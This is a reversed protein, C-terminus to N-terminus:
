VKGLVYIRFNHHNHPVNITDISGHFLNGGTKSMHLLYFYLEKIAGFRWSLLLLLSFMRMDVHFLCSIFPSLISPYDDVLIWVEGKHPVGASDSCGVPSALGNVNKPFDQSKASVEHIVHDEKSVGSNSYVRSADFSSKQLSTKTPALHRKHDDIVHDELGLGRSLQGAPLNNNMNASKSGQHEAKVAKPGRDECFHFDKADNLITPFCDCLNTHEKVHLFSGDLLLIKFFIFLVLIRICLHM